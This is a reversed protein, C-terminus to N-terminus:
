NELILVEVGFNFYRHTKVAPYYCICVNVNSIHENVQGTFNSILTSELMLNLKSNYLTKVKKQYPRNEMLISIKLSNLRAENLTIFGTIIFSNKSFSHSWYKSIM